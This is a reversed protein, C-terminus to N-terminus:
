LGGATIQMQGLAMESGGGARQIREAPVADVCGLLGLLHIPGKQLHGIDDRPLAGGGSARGRQSVHSCRFASEGDLAAAGGRMPPCM